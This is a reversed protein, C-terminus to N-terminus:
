PLGGTVGCGCAGGEGGRGRQDQKATRERKESWGCNTDASARQGVGSMEGSGGGRVPVRERRRGRATWRLAEVGCGGRSTASGGGTGVERRGMGSRGTRVGTEGVELRRFRAGKVRASTERSTGSKRAHRRRTTHAATRWVSTAAAGVTAERADCEPV